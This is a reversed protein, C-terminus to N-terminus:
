GAPVGEGTWPSFFLVGAKAFDAINRTAVALAHVAATAALFLDPQAFTHNVARGRTVMRRWELIIEEDVPLIRGAFYSRLDRELWTTLEAQFLPDDRKLEIGYRIEAITVTSIFFRDPQQAKAWAAVSPDTRDGKRLESVTVTDLLWGTM